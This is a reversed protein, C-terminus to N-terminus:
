STPADEIITIDPEQLKGSGGSTFTFELESKYDGDAIDMDGVDPSFIIVGDSGNTEYTIEGNGQSGSFMLTSYDETFCRYTIETVTDSTFDIVAGTIKNSVVWRIGEKTQGRVFTLTTKGM